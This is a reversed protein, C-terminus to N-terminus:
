IHKMMYELNINLKLIIYNNEYILKVSGYNKFLRKLIKPRHYYSTKEENSYRGFPEKSYVIFYLTKKCLKLVIKLFKQFIPDDPQYAGFFEPCRCFIIDYKSRM